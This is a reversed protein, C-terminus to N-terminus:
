GRTQWLVLDVKKVPTIPCNPIHADFATIMSQALPKELEKQYWEQLRRYLEITRKLREEKPLHYGPKKLNLSSLVESDWIPMEPNITALIKSSFSPEIRDLRSFLHHLVTEFLLNKNDKHQELFAYLEKYFEAKRQRIRYFGNFRKQFEIDITCDIQHFRDMIWLYKELGVQLKEWNTATQSYTKM